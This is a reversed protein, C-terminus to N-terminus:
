TREVPAPADSLLVTTEAREVEPPVYVDTELTKTAGPSVVGAPCVRRAVPVGDADYLDVVVSVDAAEGENSVTLEVRVLENTAAGVDTQTGTVDYFAVRDVTVHGDRNGIYRFLRRSIDEYLRDGESGREFLAGVANLDARLDSAITRRNRTNTKLRVYDSVFADFAAPLEGDYLEAYARLEADFNILPPLPASAKGVPVWPTAAPEADPEDTTPAVSRGFYGLRDLLAAFVASLATVFLVGVTLLNSAPAPLTFQFLAIFVATVIAVVLLFSGLNADEGTVFEIAKLFTPEAEVDTSADPREVLPTRDSM